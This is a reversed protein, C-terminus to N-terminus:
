VVNAEQPIDALADLRCPVAGGPLAALQAVDAVKARVWGVGCYGAGLVVRSVGIMFLGELM